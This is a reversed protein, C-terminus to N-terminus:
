GLVTATAVERNAEPRLGSVLQELLAVRADWGETRVRSQIAEVAARGAPAIAFEAAALFEDCTTACQVAPAYDRVEPLPASIVPLGAALYERLKIPNVAHTLRNLKFPILGVDLGRCYAPLEEYLRPGLFHLNPTGRWPALDCNHNGLFVFSWDPRARAAQVMLDLDVYESIQGFFGLRPAPLAALDAPICAERLTTAGNFHEYDVGHRILHTNPHLKACRERLPEATAFVIDAARIVESELRTLLSTNCGSFAAFDDVCYYVVLDANIREILEPAEPTFLWLQRPRQPAPPLARAVQRAVRRANFKRALGWDPLPILLPSCVNLPSSTKATGRQGGAIRVLHSCAARLDSLDFRPRRSAHYNVWLVRNERSLRHMVHHKSTPHSEYGSAICIIDQGHM